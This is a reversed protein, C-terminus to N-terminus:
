KLQPRAASYTKILKSIFNNVTCNEINAMENLKEFNAKSIKKDLVMRREDNWHIGGRADLIFKEPYDKAAKKKAANWADNIDRTASMRGIMGLNVVITEKLNATGTPIQLLIDIMASSLKNKSLGVSMGSRRMDVFMRKGFM